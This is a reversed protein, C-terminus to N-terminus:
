AHAEVQKGNCDAMAEMAMAAVMAAVRLAAVVRVSMNNGMNLGHYGGRQLILPHSMCM